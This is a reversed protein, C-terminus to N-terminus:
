ANGEGGFRRMQVDRAQQVHTRMSASSTGDQRAALEQYPVAPWKSTCTSAISCRAAQHAGHLTRDADPLM